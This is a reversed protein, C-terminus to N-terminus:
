TGVHWAVRGNQMFRINASSFYSSYERDSTEIHNLLWRRLFEIIEGETIDNHTISRRELDSITEVFGKHEEIHPGRGPYDLIEMLCEEVSFHIRTYDRLQVIAYHISSWRQKEDPNDVSTELDTIYGILVKHQADIQEIGVSFNNTWLTPNMFAGEKM